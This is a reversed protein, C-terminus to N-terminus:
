QLSPLPGPLLSPSYFLSLCEELDHNPTLFHMQEVYRENDRIVGELPAIFFFTQSCLSLTLAANVEFATMIFPLAAGGYRM